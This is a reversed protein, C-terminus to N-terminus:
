ISINVEREGRVKMKLAGRLQLTAGEQLDEQHIVPNKEDRSVATSLASLAANKIFGGTLEFRQSLDDQFM